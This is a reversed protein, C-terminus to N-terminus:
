EVLTVLKGEFSVSVFILQNIDCDCCNVRIYLAAIFVPLFFDFQAFGFCFLISFPYSFSSFLSLSPSLATGKMRLKVLTLSM